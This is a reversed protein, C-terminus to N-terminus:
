WVPNVLHKLMMIPEVFQAPRGNQYFKVDWRELCLLWELFAEQDRPSRRSIDLVHQLAARICDQEREVNTAPFFKKKLFPIIVHQLEPEHSTLVLELVTLWLDLLLDDRCLVNVFAKAAALRLDLYTLTSAFASAVLGLEVVAVDSQLSAMELALCKSDTTFYKSECVRLLLNSELFFPRDQPLLYKLCASISDTHVLYSSSLNEAILGRCGAAVASAIDVNDSPLEECMSVIWEERNSAFIKDVILQLNETSERTCLIRWKVEAACSIERTPEMDLMKGRGCLVAIEYAKSRVVSHHVTERAIELVDQRILDLDRQDIVELRLGLIEQLLM